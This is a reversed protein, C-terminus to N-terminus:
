SGREFRPAVGRKIETRYKLVDEVVELNLDVRNLMWRETPVPYRDQHDRIFRLLNDVSRRSIGFRKSISSKGIWTEM